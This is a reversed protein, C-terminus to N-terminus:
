LEADLALYAGAALTRVWLANGQGKDNTFILEAANVHQKAIIFENFNDNGGNGYGRYYNTGTVQDLSPATRMPVPFTLVAYANTNNYNAANFVALGESGTQHVHKYYYRLCRRLTTEYPEFEFETAVSGFEFQVKSLTFSQSADSGVTGFRLRIMDPTFSVDGDAPMDVTVEYRTGSVPSVALDQVDTTTGTLHASVQATTSGVSGDVVEVTLDVNGVAATANFSITMTKGYFIDDWEVGHRVDFATSASPNNMTLVGNAVSSNFTTNAVTRRLYFRDATRYGTGVATASTGRQAVKMNGNIVLNKSGGLPNGNISVIDAVNNSSDKSVVTGDADSPLTLTRDSAPNSSPAAIIVGNGGSHKLKIQSM